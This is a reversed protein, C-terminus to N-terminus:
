WIWPVIKKTHRQYEGYESGMSTLLAVEEIHIRYILASLPLFVAMTLSLWNQVAIGYGLCMLLIGSYSPHRILKYPGAKVVKQNVHTEVTTRFSTGLTSVAWIRLSLGLLMIILGIWFVTSTRGGPFFFRSVGNLIAAGSIGLAICIFNLYRTGRDIGPNGKGQKRDIFVLWIEFAIWLVSISTLVIWFVAM